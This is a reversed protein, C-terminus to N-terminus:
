GADLNIFDMLLQELEPKDALQLVARGEKEVVAHVLNKVRQESFGWGHIYRIHNPDYWWDKPINGEILRLYREAVKEPNWHTTVFNRAREGLQCRYTKDRILQEIAKEIEDPHCYQSPPLQDLPITRCFEEQAYGAVVTPKGFSAAEIAFAAIPIDCYAQDVAFDCKALEELVVANPKGSIEIFEIVYGQSQLNQIAQRIRPTGKGEPHSPSHLIRVKFEDASHTKFSLARESDYPLGVLLLPVLKKEFFHANLTHCVLVDAYREIKKVRSKQKCTFKICDQVSLGRDTAMISGDLYPPRSDSGHFVYIIRKHFWKLIPLDYLQFFSSRYSFIFVDFKFIAWVLLIIMTVQRLTIWWIKSILHSKPTALRKSQIFKAARVIIPPTENHKYSFPHNSLDVFTTEIGLKKFGKVLNTYYGAIETLGIFVRM